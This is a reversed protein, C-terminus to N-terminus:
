QRQIQNCHEKWINVQNELRLVETSVLVVRQEMRSKEDSMVVLNNKLDEVERNREQLILTLQHQDGKAHQEQQLQKLLGALKECEGALEQNQKRLREM